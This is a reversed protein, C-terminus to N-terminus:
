LRRGQGLVHVDPRRDVHWFAAPDLAAKCATFNGVGFLHRLRRATAISLGHRQQLLLAHKEYSDSLSKECAHSAERLITFHSRSPELAYHREVPIAGAGGQNTKVGVGAPPAVLGGARASQAYWLLWESTSCCSAIDRVNRARNAGHPPASRLNCDRHLEAQGLLRTMYRRPAVWAMDCGPRDCSLMRVSWDWSCWPPLPQWWVLDPRAFVILEFALHSREYREIAHKCWRLGLHQHILREENNGEQLYGAMRCCSLQSSNQLLTTNSSCRTARFRRWATPDADVFSVGDGEREGMDVYAGSGNIIAASAILPRLWSETLVAQLAAM